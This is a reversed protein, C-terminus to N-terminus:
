RDQLVDARASFLARHENVHHCLFAVTIRRRLRRGVFIVAHDFEIHRRARLGLALGGCGTVGADIGLCQDVLGRAVIPNNRDRPRHWRAGAEVFEGLFERLPAEVYSNGLLVRHGKGGSERALAHPGERGNIRGEQLASIVLDDMVYRNLAQRHTKRHIARAEDAGIACRM